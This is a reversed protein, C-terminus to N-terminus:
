SVESTMAAALESRVEGVAIMDRQGSGPENPKGALAARRALAEAQRRDSQQPQSQRPPPLPPPLSSSSLSLTQVNQHRALDCLYMQDQVFGQVFVCSIRSVCVCVCVCVCM